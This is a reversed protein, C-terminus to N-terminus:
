TAADLWEAEAVRIDPRQAVVVLRAPLRVPLRLPLPLEALTFGPRHYDSPPGGALVALAHRAQARRARLAILSAEQSRILSEQSLLTAVPEAGAAHRVQVLAFQERTRRLIAELVAVQESLGAERIATTVLATSLTPAAARLREGTAVESAVQAEITRRAGGFLDVGYSAALNAGYLGFVSGTATAGGGGRSLGGSLSPLLDAEAVATVSRAQRLAAEAQAVTPSAALADRVLRDLRRSRFLRWWAGPPEAGLDLIQAGEKGIGLRVPDPGEGYRPLDPAAPTTFDPGVTCGPCLLFLAAIALSPRKM